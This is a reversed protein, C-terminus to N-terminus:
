GTKGGFPFCFIGGFLTNYLIIKNRKGLFDGHREVMVPFGCSGFIEKGWSIM